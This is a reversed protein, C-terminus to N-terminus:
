HEPNTFIWWCAPTFKYGDSNAEQAWRIISSFAKDPANLEDLIKLLMVTWKQDCTYVFPKEFDSDVSRNVTNISPSASYDDVVPFDINESEPTNPEPPDILSISPNPHYVNDRRLLTQAVTSCYTTSPLFLLEISHGNPKQISRCLFAACSPITAVHLSFARESSFSRNRHGCRPNKCM